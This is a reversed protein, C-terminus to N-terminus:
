LIISAVYRAGYALARALYASRPFNLLIRLGQYHMDNEWARAPGM